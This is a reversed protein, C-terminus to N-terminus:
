SRVIGAERTLVAHLMKYGGRVLRVSSHLQSLFMSMLGFQCTIYPTTYSSYWNSDVDFESRYSSYWNSDVDFEILLGFLVCNVLYFKVVGRPWPSSAGVQFALCCLLHSAIM